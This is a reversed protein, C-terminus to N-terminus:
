RVELGLPYGRETAKKVTDVSGNLQIVSVDRSALAFM